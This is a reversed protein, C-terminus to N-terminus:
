SGTFLFFLVTRTLNLCQLDNSRVNMPTYRQQEQQRLYRIQEMSYNAANADMIGSGGVNSPMVVPRPIPQQFMPQAQQPPQMMMPNYSMGTYPNPAELQYYLDLLHKYM